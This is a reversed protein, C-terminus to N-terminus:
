MRKEFIKNRNHYLSYVTWCNSGMGCGSNIVTKSVNSYEKSLIEKISNKGMHYDYIFEFSQSSYLILTAKMYSESYKVKYISFRDTTSHLEFQDISLSYGNSKLSNVIQNDIKSQANVSTSLLVLLLLYFYNKM